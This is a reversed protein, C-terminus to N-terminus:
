QGAGPSAAPLGTFALAEARDRFARMAVIQGGSVTLVLYNRDEGRRARQQDLGPTHVILLVKDGHAAVQEVEPTLGQGAQHAM